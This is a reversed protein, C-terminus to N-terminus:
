CMSRPVYRASLVTSPGMSSLILRMEEIMNIMMYTSEQTSGVMESESMAIDCVQSELEVSM